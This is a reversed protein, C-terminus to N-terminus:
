FSFILMNDTDVGAAKQLAIYVDEEPEDRM